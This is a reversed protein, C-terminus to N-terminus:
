LELTTFTALTHIATFNDASGYALIITYTNGPVLVKDYMDGSDLPIQFRLFTEGNEEYGWYDEIDDFGGLSEDSAHSTSSTGFDDRVMVEGMDDVYGILINADAMQNTPDFGVSVWGTTPAIVNVYLYEDDTRWQLEIGDVTVSELQEFSIQEIVQLPAVGTFDDFEIVVDYAAYLMATLLVFAFIINKKM